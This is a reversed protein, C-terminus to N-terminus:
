GIWTIVETENPYAFTIDGSDTATIKLIPIVDSSAEQVHGYEDFKPTKIGIISVGENNVGMVPSHVSPSNLRTTHAYTIKIGDQNQTTEITPNLTKDGIFELGSNTNSELGNLDIENTGAKIKNLASNLYNIFNGYFSM